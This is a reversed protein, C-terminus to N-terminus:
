DKSSTSHFYIVDMSVDRSLHIAVLAIIDRRKVTSFENLILSITVFIRIRETRIYTRFILHNGVTIPCISIKTLNM